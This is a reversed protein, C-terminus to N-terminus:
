RFNSLHKIGRQSYNFIFLLQEDTLEVEEDVLQQYTPEMLSAEAVIKLIDGIEILTTSDKGSVGSIFLRSAIDMLGNPIKGSKALAMLSPRRLRVVLPMDESFGPLELVEGAKYKKLDEISTIKILDNM